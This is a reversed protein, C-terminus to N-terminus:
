EYKLRVPNLAPVINSNLCIRQGENGTIYSTFGAALGVFEQRHMVYLVRRLPYDGRWIYGPIPDVARQMDTAALRLVKISGVRKVFELNNGLWVTSVYGIADEHAAIFDMIFPASGATSDGSFVVANATVDTHDTVLNKILSYNGSRRGNIAIQIQKQSAKFPITDSVDPWNVLEGTLIRSLQDLRLENLPNQAHVLFAVGDLAFKQSYVRIDHRILFDTEDSDLERSSVIYEVDNNILKQIADGTSSLKMMIKAQTYKKEFETRETEIVSAISEDCLMRLEGSTPTSTAPRNRCSFCVLFILGLWGYDRRM